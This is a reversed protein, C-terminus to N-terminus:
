LDERMVSLSKGLKNTQYPVLCSGATLLADLQAADYQRSEVIRARILRTFGDYHCLAHDFFSPPLFTTAGFDIAVIRGDGDKMFNNRNMDSLCLRLGYQAM